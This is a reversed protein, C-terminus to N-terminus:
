TRGTSWSSTASARPTGRRGPDGVCGRKADHLTLLTFALAAPDRKSDLDAGGQQLVAGLLNGVVKWIFCGPRFTVPCFRWRRRTQSPPRTM